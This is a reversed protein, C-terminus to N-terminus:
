LCTVVPEEPRQDTGGRRPNSISCCEVRSLGGNDCHPDAAHRARNPILHTNRPAEETGGEDGAPPVLGGPVGELPAQEHGLGRNAYSDSTGGTLNAIAKQEADGAALHEALVLRDDELEELDRRRKRRELADDHLEVVAGEREQLTDDLGVVGLHRELVDVDCKEHAGPRAGLPHFALVQELGIAGDEGGLALCEVLHGLAVDLHEHHAVGGVGVGEDGHVRCRIQGLRGEGGHHAEVM